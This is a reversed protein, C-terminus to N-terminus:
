GLPLLILSLCQGGGLATGGFLSYRSPPHWFPPKPPLAAPTAWAWVNKIFSFLWRSVDRDRVPSIHRMGSKDGGFVPRRLLRPKKFLFNCKLDKMLIM